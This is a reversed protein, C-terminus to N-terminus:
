ANIVEDPERNFAAWVWARGQGKEVGVDLVATKSDIKPMPSPLDTHLFVTDSGHESTLLVIKVIQFQVNNGVPYTM